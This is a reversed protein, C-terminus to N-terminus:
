HSNDCSDTKTDSAEFTSFCVQKDTVFFRRFFAGVKGRQHLEGAWFYRVVLGVYEFDDIFDIIGEEAEFM